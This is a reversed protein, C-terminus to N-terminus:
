REPGSESLEHAPDRGFLEQRTNAYRLGDAAVREETHQRTWLHHRIHYERDHEIEESINVLDSGIGDRIKEYGRRTIGPSSLRSIDVQKAQQEIAMMTELRQKYLTVSEELRVDRMEAVIERFADAQEQMGLVSLKNGVENIHNRFATHFNPYKLDQEMNGFTPARNYGVTDPNLKAAQQLAFKEQEIRLDEFNASREANLLPQIKEFKRTAEHSAEFAQGPNMGSAIARDYDVVEANQIHERIKGTLFQYEAETQTVQVNLMHDMYQGILKRENRLKLADLYKGFEETQVFLNARAYYRDVDFNPDPITYKRIDFPKQDPNEPTEPSGGSKPEKTAMAMVQPFAETDGPLHTGALAPMNGLGRPTPLGHVENALASAADNMAATTRTIANPLLSPVSGTGVMTATDQLAVGHLAQLRQEAPLDYISALRTREDMSLIGTGHEALRKLSNGFSEVGHWVAKVNAWPDEQMRMIHLAASTWAGGNQMSQIRDSVPQALARGVAKANESFNASSAIQALPDFTMKIELPSIDEDRLANAYVRSSVERWHAREPENGQTYASIIKNINEQQIQSM